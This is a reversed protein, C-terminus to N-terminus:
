TIPLQAIITHFIERPRDGWPLRNLFLSAITLATITTLPRDSIVDSSLNQPVTGM